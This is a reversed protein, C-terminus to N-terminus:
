LNEAIGKRHSVMSKHAYYKKSHLRLAILGLLLFTTNFVMHKPWNMNRVIGGCSCPWPISSVLIFGVYVTFVTMLIVSGILGIKRTKTFILMSAVFLEVLPVLIALPLAFIHILYPSRKLDGYSLDFLIIKNLGTYIFLVFFLGVIIEVIISKKM